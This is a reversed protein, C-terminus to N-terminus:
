QLKKEKYNGITQLRRSTWLHLGHSSPSPHHDTSTEAHLIILASVEVAGENATDRNEIQFVPPCLSRCLISQRRRHRMVPGGSDPRFARSTKENPRRPRLELGPGNGGM